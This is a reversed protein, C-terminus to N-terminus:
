PLSSAVFRDFAAEAQKVHAQRAAGEEDAGLKMTLRTGVSTTTIM